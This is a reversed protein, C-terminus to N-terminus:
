ARWPGAYDVRFEGGDRQALQHFRKAIQRLHLDDHARWAILIDGARMPGIQPHHHTKSWDPPPHASALSRLWALSQRRERMFHEVAVALDGENYRKQVAWGPPDIPPWPLAPDELTLRLRTRFDLVEEDGLHRVIELISWAGDEPKWRADDATVGEVLVPLTRLFREMALISAELNM